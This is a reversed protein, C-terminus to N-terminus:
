PCLKCKAEVSVILFLTLCNKEGQSRLRSEWRKFSITLLIEMHITQPTTTLLTYHRGSSSRPTAQGRIIYSIKILKKFFKGWNKMTVGRKEM